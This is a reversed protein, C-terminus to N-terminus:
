KLLFWGETKSGDNWNAIVYYYHGAIFVAPSTDLGYAYNGGSSYKMANAVTLVVNGTRVPPNSATTGADIVQITATATTVAAGQPTQLTCKIPLNSGKRQASKTDPMTSYVPSAFCGVQVYGAVTLTGNTKTVAYNVPSAPSVVPVVPFTGASTYSTSSTCTVSGADPALLGTVTCPITPVAAGFNITASGATAAAAIQAIAFSASGTAGIYNGGTPFAANAAYLGANKPSLPNYAVGVASSFDPGTATATCPTQVAGNYALASTPCTVEVGTTAPTISFSGVGNSALWNAGGAYAATVNATGVNTNNTYSPTLSAALGGAGSVTATCPALPQGTYTASAPCTVTTASAAKAIEFTATATSGLWNGNAAYTATASATGAATNNSYAITPSGPAGAGTVGTTCPTKATGDFTANACTITTTTPAPAITFSGSASAAAYNGTATFTVSATALGANVNNAYVPTPNLSLGGVATVQATCPTQATGDYTVPEAPCSVTVTPVVAGITIAAMATVTNYVTSGAGCTVTLTYSGIDVPAGGNSYTLAPTLGNSCTGSGPHAIADYTFDGGTATVTPTIKLGTAYFYLTANTFSVGAPADGGPSPIATAENTGGNPGLNWCISAKGLLDTKTDAAAGFAGCAQNTTTDPAITGGGQKVAWTVPVNQMVTGNRTTITVTPRCAPDLATGVTASVETCVGNGNVALAPGGGFTSVGKQVTTTKPATTADTAPGFKQTTDASRRNLETVAGGIGGGFSLMPDVADFPSLETVAGGIGGGLEYAAYLPKPLILSAVSRMWGPLRSQATSSSCTLFSADAPPTIEFGYSAQHGLRLRGRVDSPVSVAPCVAVVASGVIPSSVTFDVYAPYQDLKTILPSPGNPNLTTITLLTPTGVPSAPLKIGSLGDTAVITQATDSPMILHTDTPLGAFCLTGAIFADIQAKTGALMGQTAKAKVFDVINMAQAQADTVNGAAVQKRLNDLKGLVSNVNPASPAFLIQALSNLSTITTCTGMVVNGQADKVLKPATPMGSDPRKDVCATLTLATVAVAALAVKRAYSM